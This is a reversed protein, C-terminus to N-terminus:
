EESNNAEEPISSDDSIDCDKFPPHLRALPGCFINGTEILGNSDKAIWKDGFFCSKDYTDKRAVNPMSDTGILAHIFDPELGCVGKRDGIFHINTYKAEQLATIAPDTPNYKDNINRSLGLGLVSVITLIAGVTVIKEITDFTKM